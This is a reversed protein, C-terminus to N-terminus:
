KQNTALWGESQLVKWALRIHEEPFLKKRDSWDHVKEVAAEATAAGEQKGVWHVTSLLEMAYPTEFGQILKGVCDFRRRTEEHDALFREARASADMSMEIQRTPDDEADGYGTIFHGEILSLVHRLNAAYPGYPGKAYALRLPEGSEQMFYMLKHIELLSVYPDMVAALYRRMLGLLSARGVTMNPAKKTKVMKEAAPAGAPEYLVVRVDPLEEFAREIMPRVVEWDLGGLGCGLPPIAVSEIKRTRLEEILAALGSKIDEICSKGKWHRKTPFNIVYQPWQLQHLNVVLMKGPELEERDCAARYATFNNPFEKKFQLAIGRGMVGVCNVTNVLAQTEAQLIDGRTIEIMTRDEFEFIGAVSLVSPHSVGSAGYYDYLKLKMAGREPGSLPIRRNNLCAFESKVRSLKWHEPVEGLWEVGSPKLRVNPDLGRTVARHIIAKTQENLMAILQRKARIYRRIRWDAHDLFRVIAAQEEPPPFPSPIQKFDEWYLRNRDSVIGRSFKNIENKYDDIRFLYEYYRADTQPLPQAAIYAPSILGDVPAVGVAGQWMRMMNYAVDGQRARKYKERDSMVQKRTANEFDRVRVGTNLSVELIPLEPFGTENRQRFLRGNRRLEWHAPIQGLWPLGSDKCEPCPSLSDIM